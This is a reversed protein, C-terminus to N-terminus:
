ARSNINAFSPRKIGKLELMNTFEARRSSRGYYYNDDDDYDNNHRNEHLLVNDEDGVEIDEQFRRQRSLPISTDICYNHLKACVM